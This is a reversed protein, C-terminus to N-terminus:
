ALPRSADKNVRSEWCWQMLSAQPNQRRANADGAM